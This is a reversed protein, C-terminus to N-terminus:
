IINASAINTWINQLNPSIASIPLVEEELEYIRNRQGNLYETVSKKATLLRARLGGLRLDQVDFGHGKCETIWLQYFKEHFSQLRLIVEDIVTLLRQLEARDNQKYARRLDFGLSFKLELVNCLAAASDFLYGYPGSTHKALTDRYEAYTKAADPYKEAFKDNLGLLPDNFLMIKDPNEIELVSNQSLRTPLDLLCMDDFSIAFLEYFKEKINELDNNGRYREASYFLAPLISFPSCEDGNDGWLTIFVNKLGQDFCCKMATGTRAISSINHPTFGEWKWVGGAFWLPRDFKKHAEIMKNYIFEDKSYYDWYVLEIEQPILAVIEDTITNPDNTYYEGHNALRFFMDSWMIPKFHYKNSLEVVRHLHRSLINFRNQFGNRDLFKGLGVSHAEDMGIHIYDTKFVERATEFMKEILKYTKEEDILLIDNIDRVSDYENWQFIANLHALTQICPILTIGNEESFEVIEKLEDKTYRGRMYGFYPESEIEYTDETYLMLMNYGMKNLAVMFSKVTEVTYVSNRSCDLMAGLFNM